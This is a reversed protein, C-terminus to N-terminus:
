PNTEMLTKARDRQGLTLLVQTLLERYAPQHPELDAATQLHPLADAHRGALYHALGLAYHAYARQPLLRAARDLHVIAEDPKRQAILMDGLLLHADAHEPELTLAAELSARAAEPERVRQLFRAEAVLPAARGPARAKAEDFLGLAEDKKGGGYLIMALGMRAEEHDPLISLARRCQAEAEGVRGLRFLMNGFEAALDADDPRAAVAAEYVAVADDSRRGEALVNLLGTRAGDHGPDLALARRYAAEADASMGVRRLVGGLGHQAEIVEPFREAMERAVREADAMRDRALYAPVLSRIVNYQPRLGWGRARELHGIASDLTALREGSVASGGGADGYWIEDGLSLSALLRRGQWGHYQVFGGHAVFTLWITAVISFGVGALTIRGGRKLSLNQLRENARYALRALKVGAFGTMGALGMSFLLPFSDYLGRLALLAAVGVGLMAWEESVAFDYPIRKVSQRPKAGTAPRGFGFYLADNPCVSVCDMCKMCGPDVVMGFRAVEEHVRVNSTCASTCHGRHDCADTVRIRGIALRDAPAFFGGYPCAYTCFGKSGLFYIIAFGCVVLTAIAVVPGPFTDWFGATKIHNTWSPAPEGILVRYATPWVFMYLALALPALILLRSRFPKPRIRMKRLLWAALDQYALLHCGWGCVFRGLLLTALIASAFFIFGANVEGQNLTYQAESPEIPSLTTGSIKWQVFHAIMLVHVGILVAARRRGMKSKRVIPPGAPMVPLDIDAGRDAHHNVTKEHQGALAGKTVQLRSFGLFEASYVDM